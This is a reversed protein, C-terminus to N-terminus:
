AARGLTPATRQAAVPTLIRRLIERQWDNLPPAVKAIYAIYEEADPRTANM